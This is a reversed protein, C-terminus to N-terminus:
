LSWVMRVNCIHGFGAHIRAERTHCAAATTHRRQTLAQDQSPIDTLVTMCTAASAKWYRNIFFFATGLGSGIARTIPVAEIQCSSMAKRRPATPSLYRATPGRDRDAVPRCSSIVRGGPAPMAGTGTAAAVLCHSTMEHGLYRIHHIM